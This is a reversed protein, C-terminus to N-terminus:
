SSKEGTSGAIRTTEQGVGMLSRLSRNEIRGVHSLQGMLGIPASAVSGTEATASAHGPSTSHNMNQAEELLSEFSRSEIPVRHPAAVPGPVGGPRVAPELM